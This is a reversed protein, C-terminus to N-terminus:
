CAQVIWKKDATQTLQRQQSRLAREIDTIWHQRDILLVYKKDATELQLSGFLSGNYEIRVIEPLPIVLTMKWHTNKWVSFLVGLLGFHIGQVSSQSFFLRQTTLYAYGPKGDRSTNHVRMLVEDTNLPLFAPAQLPQIPQNVLTPDIGQDTRHDYLADYIGLVGVKALNYFIATSVLLIIFTKDFSVYGFARIQVAQLWQLYPFHHQMLYYSFLALGGALSVGIIANQLQSPSSSQSARTAPSRTAQVVPSPEVSPPMERRAVPLLFTLERAAQQGAQSQSDIAVARELCARREDDTTVAGSLWLWAVQNNADAQTAQTLLARANMKDGAKLTSIGATTLTDTM